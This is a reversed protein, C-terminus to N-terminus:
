QKVVKDSYTTGDEMVIRLTYTGAPLDRMDINELNGSRTSVRRGLLDYLDAQCPIVDPSYHIHLNKNVPNPYFCYPRFNNATEPIGVGEDDLLWLFMGTPFHNGNLNYNYGVFAIGGDDLIEMSYAERDFGKHHMGHRTWVINLNEDLKVVTLVGVVDPLVQRFSFYINGNKDKCLGNPIVNLLYGGSVPNFTVHNIVNGENNYQYICIMDIGKNFAHFRRVILTNGNDISWMGNYGGENSLIGITGSGIYVNQLNIVNVLRFLSDLEFGKFYSNNQTQWRGFYNYGIPTECHQLLGNPVWGWPDNNTNLPVIVDSYSTDHKITGNLGIRAFHTEKRSIIDYHFVIDNRSDLIWSRWGTQNIITDSLRITVEKLPNFMFNDDFFAIRMLTNHSEEDTFTRVLVNPYDSYFGSGDDHVRALLVPNLNEAELTLSDIITAGHRSIKYLKLLHPIIIINQGDQRLSDQFVANLLSGDALQIVEQQPFMNYFGLVHNNISDCHQAWSLGSVALFLFLIFGKSNMVKKTKPILPLLIQVVFCVM